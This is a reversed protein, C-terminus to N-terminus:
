DEYLFYRPRLKKFAAAGAACTEPYRAGEERLLPSGALLDIFHRGGEGPPTWAFHGGSQQRLIELIRLGAALPRLAQRDTIHAQAGQCLEGQHKSAAPRFYVPRFRLGPLREGNLADALAEASLWPAGFMEFPRTTGRGESLNTGELLCTGPYLLAADLGPMNPSPNVWCLGLQDWYLRRRWGGMPVVTLACGIGYEGNFLRALEGMTLGHRQPIPAACVFSLLANDPLNGEVAGGIPNPRDLLAFAKGAQACAEMCGRLTAIYTYYRCGVDQVDMVLLDIGDLAAPAPRNGGGYLSFVPLGTRPDKYSAVAGGAEVDGRAGHEPAYLATLRYRGRLVELTPVLDRDVGSPSTVLGLRLGKLFKGEQDLRDVGCEIM